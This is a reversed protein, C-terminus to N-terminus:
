GVRGRGDNARGNPAQVRVREGLRAACPRETFRRAHPFAAGCKPSVSQRDDALPQAVFARVALHVPPRNTVAACLGRHSIAVALFRLSTQQTAGLLGYPSPPRPLSRMSTSWRPRHQFMALPSGVAAGRKVPCSQLSWAEANLAKGLRAQVVSANVQLARRLSQGRLPWVEAGQRTCRTTTLCQRGPQYVCHELSTQDRHLVPRASFIHNCVRRASRWLAM